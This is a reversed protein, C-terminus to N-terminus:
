KWKRMQLMDAFNGRKNYDGFTLEGAGPRKPGSNNRDGTKASFKCANLFLCIVHDNIADLYPLKVINQPSPEATGICSASNERDGLRVGILETRAPATHNVILLETGGPKVV